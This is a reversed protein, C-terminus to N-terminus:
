PQGGVGANAERAAPWESVRNWCRDLWDQYAMPDLQRAVVAKAGLDPDPWLHLRDGLGVEGAIREVLHLQHLAYNAWSERTTFVDTRVKIGLSQAHLAIREVNDARINIPEAFVTMPDHEAVKTLTARLDAEDCEAFTPAVAVYVPIGAAKAKRLMELRLTPAPAKPEYVRALENNLTPISSGLLLRDGFSALLDFDRSVLPSRTLIRVNLTSRDRILELMRRVTQRAQVNLERQREPDPHRLMQWADTTTSLMVARHGDANLEHLSTTEAKRLSAMFKKEDFPRLFAYQGWQVDPDEVGHRALHHQLKITSVDPVYCFRCAHGCGVFPNLSWQCLSKHQFNCPTIQVPVHWIGTIPHSTDAGQAPVVPAAHLPSEKDELASVAPASTNSESINFM